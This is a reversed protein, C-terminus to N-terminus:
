TLRGKRQVNCLYCEERAIDMPSNDRGAGHKRGSEDVDREVVHDSFEFRDHHHRRSIDEKAEPTSGTSKAMNQFTCKELQLYRRGGSAIRARRKM